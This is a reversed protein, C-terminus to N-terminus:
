LRLLWSSRLPFNRHSLLPGPAPTAAPALTPPLTRSWTRLFIRLGSMLSNEPGSLSLRVEQICALLLCLGATRPRPQLGPATRHLAPKWVAAGPSRACARRGRLGWLVGEKERKHTSDLCCEPIELALEQCYKAQSAQVTSPGAPGSTTSPLGQTPTWYLQFQWRSACARAWSVERRM